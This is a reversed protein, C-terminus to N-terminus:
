TPIQEMISAILELMGNTRMQQITADHRQPHSLTFYLNEGQTFLGAAQRYTDQTIKEMTTGVKEPTIDGGLLTIQNLLLTKAAIVQDFFDANIATIFDIVFWRTFNIKKEHNYNDPMNRLYNRVDKIKRAFIDASDEPNLIPVGGANTAYLERAMGIFADRPAWRLEGLMEGLRDNTVDNSSYAYARLAIDHAIFDEPSIHEADPRGLEHPEISHLFCRELVNGMDGVQYIGISMLVDFHAEMQAATQGDLSLPLTIQANAETLTRPLTRTLEIGVGLDILARQRGPDDQTVHPLYDSSEANSGRQERVWRYYDIPSVRYERLINTADVITEYGIYGANILETVESRAREFNEQPNYTDINM